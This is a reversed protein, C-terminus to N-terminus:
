SLSRDGIRRDIFQSIVVGYKSTSGWAPDLAMITPVDKQWLNVDPNNPHPDYKKEL